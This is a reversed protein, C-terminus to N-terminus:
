SPRRERGGDRRGRGRDGRGRGRDGRGRGRDGREAREKRRREQEEDWGEPKELLPRRSLRVKGSREDVELVKVEVEDGEEFLDSPHEVRSYAMESVHLLGDIGPMIRVFAGFDTIKAINGAYVKGEEPVATLEEIL